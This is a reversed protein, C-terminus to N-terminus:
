KAGMYTNLYEWVQPLLVPPNAIIFAVLLAIYFLGPTKGPPGGPARKRVHFNHHYLQNLGFYHPFYKSALMLGFSIGSRLYNRKRLAVNRADTQKARLYFYFAFLMFFVLLTDEKGIRNITIANVGVSWFAGAMLGIWRDFFAATLLFLPVVTLAGVIANPFRFAAEDSFVWGHSALVRAAKVSAFMLAKMLMPHESNATIDGHEYARVADIKNVEDEAFGIAGLQAVRFAFAIAVLVVLAAIILRRNEQREPDAATEQFNPEDVATGEFAAKGTTMLLRGKSDADQGSATVVNESM